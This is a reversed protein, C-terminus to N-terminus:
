SSALLSTSGTMTSAAAPLARAAAGSGAGAQVALAAAGDGFLSNVVATRMTGDFVYAASCAESCVLLALEGPHASAWNAVAGLGNLGANCGMGVVDLRATDPDLGLENILLASFGPTLFGTTTVAVLYRVEHLERGIERLCRRLADAGTRVGQRRHKELLEGQTEVRFEGDDGRPPLTLHRQEIGGNLFVGRIKPDTIKLLDILERHNYRDPPNATAVGLLKPPTAVRQTHSRLNQELAEVRATSMTTM